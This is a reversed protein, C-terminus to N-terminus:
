AARALRRPTPSGAPECQMRCTHPPLSSRMMEGLKQLEASSPLGSAGSAVVAYLAQGSSFGSVSHQADGQSNCSGVQITMGDSNPISFLSLFQDNRSFLLHASRKGCILCEGAGRFRWGDGPQAIAVAFGLDSSMKQKLQELDEGPILHHDALKACADHTAFMSATVVRPIQVTRAVQSNSPPFLNTRIQVAAVGVAILAIAAAIATKFEVRPLRFRSPQSSPRASAAEGALLMSVKSRLSAPAAQRGLAGKLAARLAPDDFQSAPDIV